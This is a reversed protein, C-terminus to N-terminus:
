FRMLVYLDAASFVPRDSYKHSRKELLEIAVEESNLM